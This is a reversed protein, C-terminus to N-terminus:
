RGVGVDTASRSGVLEAYVSEQREVAPLSGFRAAVARACHGLRDRLTPDGIVSGLSDALAGPDAPRVLLGNEGDVVHDVLGGVATVVGPLGLAVSEMYAVPLGEQHSSLCFIDAAAMLDLVDGRFGLFRFRDDLGLEKRREEHQDALPGQGVSWFVANPHQDLVRRAAALLVDHAKETRLHAVNIVVVQDPDIGMEARKADRAVAHAAVTDVDIGHTLVEVRKRLSSPVSDRADSSVAFQADDLRYTVANAVRTAVAYCDWTNHETYVLRPRRRGMARLVPRAIAAPMPSHTHVVDINDQLVLRRLEMVWRPDLDGARGPRDAGLATCRVGLQELEPVISNPRDVLYAASYSFRQRDGSRAHNVLLREMGGPGFGKALWLVRIAREDASM